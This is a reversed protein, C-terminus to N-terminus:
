NDGNLLSDPNITAQTTGRIANLADTNRQDAGKYALAGNPGIQDRLGFTHFGEHGITWRIGLGQNGFVGLPGRSFNTTQGNTFAQSGAPRGLKAYDDASLINATPGSASTNRLASADSHLNAAVARKLDGSGAKKADMKDAKASLKDARSDLSNAQRQQAKDFRKWEDDTFGAGRQYDGTPDTNNVPDNNVYTYLNVQDNYGVPDTQLFRADAATSYFSAAFIATAIAIMWRTQMRGLGQMKEAFQVHLAFPTLRCYCDIQIPSTTVAAWDALPTLHPASM